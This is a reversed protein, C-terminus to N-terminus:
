SSSPVWVYSIRLDPNLEHAGCLGVQDLMSGLQGLMPGVCGGVAWFFCEVLNKAKPLIPSALYPLTDCHWFTEHLLRPVDQMCRMHSEHATPGPGLRHASRKTQTQAQLRPVGRMGGSPGLAARGTENPYPEQIGLQCRTENPDRKKAHQFNPAVFGADRSHKAHRAHRPACWMEALKQWMVCQTESVGACM